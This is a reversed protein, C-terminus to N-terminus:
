PETVMEQMSEHIIGFKRHLTDNSCSKGRWLLFDSFKNKTFKYLMILCEVLEVPTVHALNNERSIFPKTEEILSFYNNKFYDLVQILDALVSEENISLRHKQKNNKDPKVTILRYQQLRKITNFVTNRSYGPEDKFEDVVNQKTAEPNNAIYKLVATEKQDLETNETVCIKYSSDQRKISLLKRRLCDFRSSIVEKISGEIDAEVEKIEDTTVVSIEEEM